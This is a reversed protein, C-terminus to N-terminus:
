APNGSIRLEMERRSPTADTRRAYTGCSILFISARSDVRM